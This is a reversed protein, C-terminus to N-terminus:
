TWGFDQTWWPGGSGSSGAVGIGIAELECNLINKRHGPSNMWGAVVAAATPYGKAINEAGPDPYGAAKIRDWPSRGDQSDHAFHDNSAMDASHAQAARVLRVDVRLPDCGAATRRVNTLRIAAEEAGRLVRAAEPPLAARPSADRSPHRASRSPSPTRVPRARDTARPVPERRRVSGPIETPVPPVSASASPAPTKGPGAVDLGSQPDGFALRELALGAALILATGAIASGRAVARRKIAAREWQPDANQGGGSRRDYRRSLAKEGIRGTQVELHHVVIHATGM